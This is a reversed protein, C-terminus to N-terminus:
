GIPSQPRPRRPRKRSRPGGFPPLAKYPGPSEEGSSKHSNQSGDVETVSSRKPSVSPEERESREEPPSSRSDPRQPGDHPIEECPGVDEPSLKHVSEKQQEEIRSKSATQPPQEIVGNNVIETPDAQDHVEAPWEGVEMHVGNGQDRVRSGFTQQHFEELPTPSPSMTQARSPSREEPIRLAIVGSSVREPHLVYSSHEGIIEEPNQNSTQQRSQGTTEVAEAETGNSKPGGSSPVSGTERGTRSPPERRSSGLGRSVAAKQVHSRIVNVVLRELDRSDETIIDYSKDPTTELVRDSPQKRRHHEALEHRLTRATSVSIELQEQLTELRKDNENRRRVEEFVFLNCLLLVNATASQISLRLEPVDPKKWLWLIRALLIATGPSNIETFLRVLRAFGRRVFRCQRAIKQVLEARKAKFKESLHNVSEKALDHFYCLEATFIQTELIFGEIEKPASRITRVCVVLNKTLKVLSGSLQMIAALGGILTLAEAM